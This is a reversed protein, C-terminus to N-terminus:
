HRPGAFLQNIKRLSNWGPLVNRCTQQSFRRQKRGGNRFASHNSPDVAGEFTGIGVEYDNRTDIVVVDAGFNIRELGAYKAYHWRAKPDVDPQGM